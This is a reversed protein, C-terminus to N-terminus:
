LLRFRIALLDSAARRIEDPNADEPLMIGVSRLDHNEALFRSIHSWVLENDQILEPVAQYEKGELRLQVAQGDALNKWWPSRTMVMVTKEDLRKYAVPTSFKKGSKRGRFTLVLLGHSLVGHLPSYLIAKMSPNIINKFLWKPPTPAQREAAM